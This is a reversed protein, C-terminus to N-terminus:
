HTFVPRVCWRVAGISVDVQNHSWRDKARRRLPSKERKEIRKEERVCFACFRLYPFLHSEGRLHKQLM